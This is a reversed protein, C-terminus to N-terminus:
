PDGDAAEEIKEETVEQLVSDDGDNAPDYDEAPLEGEDIADDEDSVDEGLEAAMDEDDEDVEPELEDLEVLEPDDAGSAEDEADAETVGQSEAQTDEPEAM